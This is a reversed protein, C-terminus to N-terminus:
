GIGVVPGELAALNATYLVVPPRTLQEVWKGDSCKYTTKFGSGTTVTVTGGDDVNITLNTNTKFSCGKRATTGTGKTDASAPGAAVALCLAAILAVVPARLKTSILM